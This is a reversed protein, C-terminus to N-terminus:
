NFLDVNNNVYVDVEPSIQRVVLLFFERVGRFGRSGEHNRQSGPQKVETMAGHSISANQQSTCSVTYIIDRKRGNSKIKGTKEVSRQKKLNEVVSTQIDGM